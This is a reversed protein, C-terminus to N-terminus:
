EVNEIYKKILNIKKDYYEIAEEIELINIDSGFNLYKKLSDRDNILKNLKKKEEIINM